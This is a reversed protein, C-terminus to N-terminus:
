KLLAIYTDPIGIAEKHKKIWFSLDKERVGLALKNNVSVVDVASESKIFGKDVLDLFLKM